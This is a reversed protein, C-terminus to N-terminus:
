KVRFQHIGTTRFHEFLADEAQSELFLHWDNSVESHFYHGKPPVVVDPLTKLQGKSTTVFCRITLTASSLKESTLAEDDNYTVYLHQEFPMGPKFVATQPGAFRVKVESHIIRTEIFADRREGQFFDYLRMVVRIVWGALSTVGVASEM